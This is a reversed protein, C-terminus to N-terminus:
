PVWTEPVLFHHRRLWALRAAKGGVHQRDALGADNALADLELLWPTGRGKSKVGKQTSM